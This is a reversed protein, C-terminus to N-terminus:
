LACMCNPDHPHSTAMCVEGLLGPEGLWVLLTQLLSRLMGASVLGGGNNRLDIVYGAVGRTELATLAVRTDFATSSGFSQISIYGLM